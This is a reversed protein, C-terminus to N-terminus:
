IQPLTAVQHSPRRQRALCGATGWELSYRKQKEEEKRKKERLSKQNLLFVQPVM